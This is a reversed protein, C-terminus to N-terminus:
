RCFINLSVPKSNGRHRRGPSTKQIGFIGGRSDGRRSRCSDGVECRGEKQMTKQM